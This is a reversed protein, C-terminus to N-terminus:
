LHQLKTHLLLQELKPNIPTQRDWFLEFCAAAQVAGKPIQKTSGPYARHFLVEILVAGPVGIVEVPIFPLDRSEGDEARRYLVMDGRQLLKFGQAGLPVPGEEIFMKRPEGAASLKQYGRVGLYGLPVQGEMIEESSIPASRRM